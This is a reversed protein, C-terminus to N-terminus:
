FVFLEMPGQEIGVGHMGGGEGQVVLIAVAAQYEGPTSITRLQDEWGSSRRLHWEQRSRRGIYLQRAHPLSLYRHPTQLRRETSPQPDLNQRSSLSLPMALNIQLGKYPLTAQDPLISSSATLTNNPATPAGTNSNLAPGGAGVQKHNEWDVRQCDRSCYFRDLCNACRSLTIGEESASKDCTACKRTASPGTTSEAM